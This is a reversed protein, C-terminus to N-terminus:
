KQNNTKQFQDQSVDEQPVSTIDNVKTGIEGLLDQLSQGIMPVIQKLDDKEDIAKMLAVAIKQVMKLHQSQRVTWQGHLIKRLQNVIEECLKATQRVGIGGLDDQLSQVATLVDGLKHGLHAKEENLLFSKFRM